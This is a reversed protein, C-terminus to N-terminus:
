IVENRINEKKSNEWKDILKLMEQKSNKVYKLVLTQQKDAIYIRGFNFINDQATINIIRYMPVIKQTKNFVGMEVIIKDDNYYYNSNRLIFYYALPIFLSLVMKGESILTFIITIVLWVIFIIKSIPINYYDKM